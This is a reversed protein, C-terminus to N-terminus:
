MAQVVQLYKPNKNLERVTKVFRVHAHIWDRHTCTCTRTHTDMYTHTKHTCLRTCNMCMYVKHFCHSFYSGIDSCTTCAWDTHTHTNTHTHKHTHTHTHTHTQTDMYTHTMHTHVPMYLYVKHFCHSFYSGIDSCTTCAWDTQTHTHTHTHTNTHTDMYTHTMHTHVPM